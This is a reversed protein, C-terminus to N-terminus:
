KGFSFTGKKDPNYLVETAIMNKADYLIARNDLNMYRDGFM